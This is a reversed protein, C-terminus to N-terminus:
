ICHLLNTVTYKLHDVVPLLNTSIVPKKKSSCMCIVKVSSELKVHLIQTLNINVHLIINVSLIKHTSNGGKWDTKKKQDIFFM